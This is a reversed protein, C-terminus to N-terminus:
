RGCSIKEHIKEGVNDAINYTDSVFSLSIYEELKIVENEEFIRKKKISKLISYWDSHKLKIKHAKVTVLNSYMELITRDAIRYSVSRGQLSEAIFSFGLLSGYTKNGMFIGTCEDDYTFCKQGRKISYVKNELYPLCVIKDQWKILAYFPYEESTKIDILWDYKLKMTKRDFLIVRKGDTPLVYIDTGDILMNWAKVDAPIDIRIASFNDLNLEIIYRTGTIVLYIINNQQICCHRGVEIKNVPFGKPLVNIWEQHYIYEEKKTQYEIIIGDVNSIFYVSDKYNVVNAFVVEGRKRDHGLEQGIGTKKFKRTKIDYELIGDDSFYPAILVKEDVPEVVVYQLRKNICNSPIEGLFDTQDTLLDLKFLGQWDYYDGVFWIESNKFSIYEIRPSLLGDPQIMMEQVRVGKETTKIM